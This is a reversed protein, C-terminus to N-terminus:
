NITYRQSGAVVTYQPVGAPSLTSNWSQKSLSTAYAGISLVKVAYVGEVAGKGITASVAAADATATVSTSDAQIITQFSSGGLSTEIGKVATQLKGILTEFTGLEDRQGTLVSQQSQLLSIPLGAIAVARSIVNQF